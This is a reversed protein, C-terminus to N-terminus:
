HLNLFSFTIISIAFSINIRRSLMIICYQSLWDLYTIIEYYANGKEFNLPDDDVPEEKAELTEWEEKLIVMETKVPASMKRYCFFLCSKIKFM